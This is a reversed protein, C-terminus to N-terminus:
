PRYNLHNLIGDLEDLNTYKLILKGAGKSTHQISVPVGVQESLQEQLKSIDNNTQVSKAAQTSSPLTDPQKTLAEAQRVSLRKDVIHRALMKQRDEPLSLLCRAHGMELDGRELMTRVDPTLNLLRLINSVATRSKGVTDAVEQHTLKFEDQLRKLALAEEVVNLDERQINEILAMAIAAEDPVDRIIAPIKEKGALQSARWRREGAIIEYRHEGIPRIVIPQMVGQTKISEALEQLAEEQMDRRPQYKGRQLYEIPIDVMMGDKPGANPVPLTASDILATTEQPTANTAPSTASRNVSGLLADLGRGLRKNSKSM